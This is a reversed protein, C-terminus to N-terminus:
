KLIDMGRKVAPKEGMVDLWRKINKNKEIAESLPEKMMEYAAVIWPYTAMDAITYMNGAVYTNKELQKDLVGLLREGEEKFRSIAQPVKEEARVAFYGLQGLMPGIGGVQWYTWELVKYREPGHAPLYKEFKEALYTLIAGSEFITVDNDVLGPIKNNPSIKLFDPTFQESKSLDIPMLKYPVGLEELLIAPKKGNPTKWTYLQIM